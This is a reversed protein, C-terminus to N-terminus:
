IDMGCNNAMILNIETETAAPQVNECKKLASVAAERCKLKQADSIKGSTAGAVKKKVADTCKKWIARGEENSMGAGSPSDASGIIPFFGISLLIALHLVPKM